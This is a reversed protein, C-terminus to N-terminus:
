NFMIDIIHLIKDKLAHKTPGLVNVPSIFEVTPSKMDNEPIVGFELTGGDARSDISMMIEISDCKDESFLLPREIM